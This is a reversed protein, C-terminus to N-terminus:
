EGKTRKLEEIEKNLKKIKENQVYHEYASFICCIAIMTLSTSVRKNIRHQKKSGQACIYALDRLDYLTKQTESYLDIIADKITDKVDM